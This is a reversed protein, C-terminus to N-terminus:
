DSPQTPREGGEDVRVPTFEAERAAAAIFAGARLVGNGDQDVIARDLADIEVSAQHNRVDIAAKGAAELRLLVDRWGCAQTDLESADRVSPGAVAECM